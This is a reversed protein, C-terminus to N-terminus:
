PFILYYPRLLEIFEPTYENLTNKIVLKSHKTESQETSFLAIERLVKGNENPIIEIRIKCYMNSQAATPLTSKDERSFIHSREAILKSPDDEKMSSLSCVRRVLAEMVESPYIVAFEFNPRSHKFIAELLQEPSLEDSHMAAQKSKSSNSLHNIFFPPNSFIFDYTKNADFSKVDGEIVQIQHAFPLQLINKRALKAVDPEIEITDIRKEPHFQAIMAPLIGCGTGIELMNGTAWKKLYAGFICAETGIKLGPNGHELSFGKFQFISRSEAM